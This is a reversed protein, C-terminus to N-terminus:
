RAGLYVGAGTVGGTQTVAYNGGVNEANPGFLAGNVTGTIGSGAVSFNFNAPGGTAILAAPSAGFTMSGVNATYSTVMRNDLDIGAGFTGEVRQLTSTGSNYETGYMAGNYTVTGFSQAQVAAVNTNVAGAVYPVAYAADITPTATTGRNAEGAWVGWHVFECSTCRNTVQAIANANAIFGNTAAYNGTVGGGYTVSSQQAAYLDKSLYANESGPNGFSVDMTNAPTNKDFLALNASVSNATDNTTV